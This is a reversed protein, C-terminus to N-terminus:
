WDLRLHAVNQKRSSSVAIGPNPDASITFGELEDPDDTDFVKIVVEKGTEVSKELDIYAFRWKRGEVQNQILM